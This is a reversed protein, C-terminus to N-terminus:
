TLKLDGSIKDTDKNMIRHSYQDQRGPQLETANMPIELKKMHKSNNNKHTNPLPEEYWLFGLEEIARGVKVAQGLDYGSRSDLMLTFDDGVAKRVAKCASIDERWRQNPHLKYGHYGAAKVALAQEVYGEATEHQESSAYVPIKDRFTGIMAHIPLGSIKGALDWLAVDVACVAQTSVQARMRSLNQYLRERDLPNQGMLIPKLFRVIHPADLSGPHVCLGLFGFGEVGEDTKIRVLGLDSNTKVMKVAADYSKLPINEWKFLTVTVDTIKM